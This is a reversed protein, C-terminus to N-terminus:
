EVVGKMYIGNSVMVLYVNANSGLFLFPLFKLIVSLPVQIIDPSIARDMPQSHGYSEYVTFVRFTFTHVKCSPVSNLCCQEEHCKSLFIFIIIILESNTFFIFFLGMCTM